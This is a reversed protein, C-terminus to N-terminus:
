SITSCRTRSTSTTSSGCAARASATRSCSASSRPRRSWSKRRPWANPGANKPRLSVFVCRTPCEPWSSPTALGVPVIDDRAAMEQITAEIYQAFRRQAINLRDVLSPREEVAHSLRAVDAGFRDAAKSIIDREAFEYGLSAAVTHGIEIGLSGLNESVAVVSM